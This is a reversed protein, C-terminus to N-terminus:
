RGWRPFADRGPYRAADQLENEIEMLRNYKANRESRSLSGTKIQGSNLAVALDAITTDETEGSRHSIVTAYGSRHALEVADITESLTGIQNLKILVANAVGETVGRRIREINTVFLDDGVLQLKDGLTTTLHKWGAWDDEALGDEISVLPYKARWAAYRETLAAADLSAKERALAYKGNVFLETAAPDLAIAIDEGARYGAKDIAELILRIPEENNKLGAPAFGGEDGVGTGMGRDHLIAKLAHFVEAGARVAERFSTAGIPAVMYEQMDASDTAHKGGNLINMLPVPLTRALPGGLYRYLPLGVANAAARACALSVGLIANAGLKAKDPTGDLERLLSDIASQDSADEGILEPAMVDDVNGVATRVGKGRYRKPDKDRLEVAEHTGTSAGSPVFASGIAGGSLFVDVAVTPDGRSDLVERARVM